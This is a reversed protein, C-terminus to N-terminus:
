GDHLGQLVRRFLATIQYVVRGPESGDTFFRPWSTSQSPGSGKSIFIAAEGSPAAARFVSEVRNNAAELTPAQDYLQWPGTWIRTRFYIAATPQETQM